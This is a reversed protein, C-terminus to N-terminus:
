RKLQNAQQLMEDSTTIIRANSEYARQALILNVMETAVQVNSMELANQIIRSPRSVLGEIELMPDGASVTPIFLNNGIAELGQPNPFQVIEFRIGLDETENEANRGFFRGYHDVTINAMGFEEPIIIHEANTDLVHFGDNTVLFNTTGSTAISFSGDRTYAHTGDGLDVVFFGAGDIAFDLPINTIQLNGREFNRSTAAARVGLGVQLNVPRTGMLNVPDLDARALTQYLLSKFELRERKFATTNVNALNNGITDVKTQQAHMGSAGTWLARMM